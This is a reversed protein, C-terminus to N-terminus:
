DETDDYFILAFDGAFADISGFDSGQKIRLVGFAAAGSYGPIAGQLRRMVGPRICVQSLTVEKDPTSVEAWWLRTTTTYFIRVSLALGNIITTFEQDPISPILSIKYFSNAM